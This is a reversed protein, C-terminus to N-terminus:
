ALRAFKMSFENEVQLFYTNLNGAVQMGLNNKKRQEHSSNGSSITM